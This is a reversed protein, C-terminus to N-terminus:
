INEAKNFLIEADSNNHIGISGAPNYLLYWKGSVGAAAPCIAILHIKYAPNNKIFEQAKERCQTKYTKM